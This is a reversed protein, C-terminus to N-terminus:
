ARGSQCALADGLVDVQELGYCSLVGLNEGQLFHM